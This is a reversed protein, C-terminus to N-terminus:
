KIKKSCISFIAGSFVFKLHSTHWCCHSQGQGLTCTLGKKIKLHATYFFHSLYSFHGVSHNQYLINAPIYHFRSEPNIKAKLSLHTGSLSWGLQSPHFILLASHPVHPNVACQCWTNLYIFFLLLFPFCYLM